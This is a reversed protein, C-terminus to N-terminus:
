SVCRRLFEAFLLALEGEDFSYLMVGGSVTKVLKAEVLIKMHKSVEKASVNTASSIKYRSFARGRNAALFVLIRIRVKSSLTQEIWKSSATISDLTGKM